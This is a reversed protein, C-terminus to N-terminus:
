EEGEDAVCGLQQLESVEDMPLESWAYKCQVCVRLMHEGDSLRFSMGDHRAAKPVWKTSAGIKWCKPCRRKALYPLSPETM